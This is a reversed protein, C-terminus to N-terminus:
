VGPLGEISKDSEPDFNNTARTEYLIPGKAIQVAPVKDERDGDRRVDVREERRRFQAPHGSKAAATIFIDPSKVGLVTYHFNLIM